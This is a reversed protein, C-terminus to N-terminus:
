EQLLIVKIAKGTKARDFGLAAEELPLKESILPQLDIKRNAILDSAFSYDRTRFGSTGVLSISKYHIAYSSVSINKDKPLGGFLHVIGGPKAVNAVSEVVGPIGVATIVVDPGKGNTQNAAWDALAGDKGPDHTVAGLQGALKRRNADPETVLVSNAGWATALLVHLLGM